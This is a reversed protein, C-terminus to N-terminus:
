LIKDYCNLKYITDAFYECKIERCWKLVVCNDDIIAKRGNEFAKYWKIVIQCDSVNQEYMFM